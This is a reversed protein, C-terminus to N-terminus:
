KHEYKNLLIRIPINTKYRKAVKNIEDLTLELGNESYEDPEIPAIIMDSALIAGAISADLDPPCDILIFDYIEKLPTIKDKYVTDLPMHNLLLSTDLLANEYGSPLVDLGPLVNILCDSINLNEKIVDIMVPLEFPKIGFSKTLNGQKDLDIICVKFGYLTLRIATELQLQKVM